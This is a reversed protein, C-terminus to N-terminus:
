ATTRAGREAAQVNSWRPGQTVYRDHDYDRMAQVCRKCNCGRNRGAPTGHLGRPMPQQNRQDRYARDADCCPECGCSYYNYGTRTGHPCGPAVSVLAGDIVERLERLAAIRQGSPSRPSTRRIAV